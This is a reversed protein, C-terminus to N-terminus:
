GDDAMPFQGRDAMVGGKPCLYPLYPPQLYIALTFKASRQLGTAYAHARTPGLKACYSELM